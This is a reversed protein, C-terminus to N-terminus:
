DHIEVIHNQIDDEPKKETSLDSVLQGTIPEFLEWFPVVTYNVESLDLIRIINIATARYHFVVFNNLYIFFVRLLSDLWDVRLKFYIDVNVYGVTIRSSKWTDDDDDTAIM